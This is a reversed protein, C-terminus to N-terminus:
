QFTFHQQSLNPFAIIIKYYMSEKKIYVSREIFYSFFASFKIVEVFPRLKDLSFGDLWM